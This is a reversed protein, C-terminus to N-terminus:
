ALGTSYTARGGSFHATLVEGRKAPAFSVHVWNGEQIVQDFQIGSQEIARCIALPDGFAACTFDAAFGSMHASKTAGGIATNLAPCRYGSDIHMPRSGLCQARIAELGSALTRLNDVIEPSPTNDIGRRMATSSFTLEELTFHDTLKM